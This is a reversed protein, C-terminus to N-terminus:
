STGCEGCGGLPCREPPVKSTERQGEASAPSNTVGKPNELLVAKEPSFTYDQVASPAANFADNRYAFSGSREQGGAASPGDNESPGTKEMMLHGPHYGPVIKQDGREVFGPKVRALRKILMLNKASVNDSTINGGHAGCGLTMSPVLGTAFGVAGQSTPANVLIRHVPKELAFKMIIEENTSHIAMTHGMGGFRLLELCKLCCAEWGEASYVALIPSLKEMSLPYAPGVQDEEALLVTTEKPVSFGAMEALEHPFRGVIDPNIGKGRMIIKALLSKEGANCLYAGQRSFERLVRNKVPTDIVVSQESSCITSNDFTQSAVIAKVALSLNASREIFAPANGPGVGFAPKGASYAAKVMAEGGTALILSTLPHAMAEHIGEMSVQTMCGLLGDPAGARMAAEAMIRTARAICRIGRPHPSFVVANRTKLSIIGKFLTTSTPNTIPVIGLIVGYPEAIEMVGKRDDRAIVGVTKLDKIDEWLHQTAFRNKITKSDVRGFGSEQVAMEALEQSAELGARVAASTIRDVQAQSFKAYQKQAQAAKKLLARAEQMSSLDRDELLM